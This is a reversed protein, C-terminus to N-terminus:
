DELEGFRRKYEALEAIMAKYKRQKNMNTEQGHDSSSMIKLNEPRNDKRDHNIHHVHEHTKLYRDLKKEMIFRHELIRGSRNAKPHEPEYIILYGQANIIVPRGNHIRGTPRKTRNAIECDKSCFKRESHSQSVNFEKGCHQCKLDIRNRSQWQNTCKRSCFRRNQKIYAPQRYFERGCIQCNVYDGKRPKTKGDLTRQKVSCKISCTWKQNIREPTLYHTVPKGCISCPRTEKQGRYPNPAWLDPSRGRKHALSASCSQGCTWHKRNVQQELTKTVLKGCFECAKTETKQM